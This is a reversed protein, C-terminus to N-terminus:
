CAALAVRSSVPKSFHGRCNRASRAFYFLPLSALTGINTFQNDDLRLTHLRQLTLILVFMFTFCAVFGYFICRRLLVKNTHLGVSLSHAGVDGIQNGTIDLSVLSTTLSISFCNFFPHSLVASPLM